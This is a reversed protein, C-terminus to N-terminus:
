LDVRVRFGGYAMRRADFPMAQHQDAEMVTDRVRTVLENFRPDGSLDTRLVLLNVFFGILGEVEPRNRGANDAM